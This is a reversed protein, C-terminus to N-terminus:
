PNCAAAVGRPPSGLKDRVPGRARSELEDAKVSDGLDRLRDIIERLKLLMPDSALYANLEDATAFGRARRSAGELIREGATVLTRARRQREEVLTQKKASIAEYVEERKRALDAVFEEFESFRGEVEELQLLVRSLEEDCREPTNARAIASEANQGLLKFQAAFEARGERGLVEKRRSTLTARVRNLQGFVESITELIRARATADAVQLGGAIEALANMGEVLAELEESLPALETAKEATEIRRLLETIKGTLPALAADTLLFEACAASTKNSHAVTEAELADVAVLDMYRLERLTILKGRQTRLAALAGMFADV